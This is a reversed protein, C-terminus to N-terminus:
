ASRLTRPRRFLLKGDADIVDASEATGASLAGEVLAKADEFSPTQESAEVQERKLYRVTYIM